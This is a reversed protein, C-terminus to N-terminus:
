NRIVPYRAILENIYETIREELYGREFEDRRLIEERVSKDEERTIEENFLLNYNSVEMELDLLRESDYASLFGQTNVARIVGIAQHLGSRSSTRALHRAYYFIESLFYNPQIGKNKVVEAMTLFFVNSVGGEVCGSLAFDMAFIKEPGLEKLVEPGLMLRDKFKKIYAIEESKLSVIQYSYINMMQKENEYLKSSPDMYDQEFFSSGLASACNKQKTAELNKLISDFEGASFKYTRNKDSKRKAIKERARKSQEEDHFKEKLVSTYSRRPIFYTKLDFYYFIASAVFLLFAFLSARHLHKM